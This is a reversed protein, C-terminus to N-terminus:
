SKISYIKEVAERKQAHCSFAYIGDTPWLIIKGAHILEAARQLGKPDKSLVEM